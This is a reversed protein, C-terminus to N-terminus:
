NISIGFSIPAEETSAFKQSPDNSDDVVTYIWFLNITLVKCINEMIFMVPYATLFSFKVLIDFMKSISMRVTAYSYLLLPYM